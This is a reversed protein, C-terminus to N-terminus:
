GRYVIRCPKRIVEGIAPDGFEPVMRGSEPFDALREVAHFLNGVFREAASINDEAIFTTIDKLDLKASPSWILKFAM